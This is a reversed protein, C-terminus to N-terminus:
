AAMVEEGLDTWLQIEGHFTNLSEMFGLQRCVVDGAKKDWTNKEPDCLGRWTGDKWIEVFGGEFYIGGSLKVLSEEFGLVTTLWTFCFLRFVIKSLQEYM